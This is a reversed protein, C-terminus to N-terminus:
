LQPALTSTIGADFAQADKVDGFDAKLLEDVAKKTEREGIEEAKSRSSLHGFAESPEGNVIPLYYKGQYPVAVKVSHSFNNKM